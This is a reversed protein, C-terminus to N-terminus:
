CNFLWEKSSKRNLCVRELDNKLASADFASSKHCARHIRVECEPKASVTLMSNFHEEARSTDMENSALYKKYDKM